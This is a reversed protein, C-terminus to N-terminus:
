PEGFRLVCRRQAGLRQVGAAQEIFMCTNTLFFELRLWLFFLLIHVFVWPPASSRRCITVCVAGVFRLSRDFLAGNDVGDDTDEVAQQLNCSAKHACRAQLVGRNDATM